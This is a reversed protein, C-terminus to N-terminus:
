FLEMINFSIIKIQVSELNLKGNYVDWFFIESEIELDNMFFFLRLSIKANLLFFFKIDFM